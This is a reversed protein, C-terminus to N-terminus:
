MHSRWKSYLFFLRFINRNQHFNTERTASLLNLFDADISVLIILILNRTKSIHNMFFDIHYIGLRFVRPDLLLEVELRNLHLSSFKYIQVFYTPNQAELVFFQPKELEMRLTYAASIM